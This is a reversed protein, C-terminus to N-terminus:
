RLLRGTARAILGQKLMIAKQPCIEHCCFCRICKSYDFRPKKDVMDIATAPCIDHCQRCGICLDPICAPRATFLNKAAVRFSKPVSNLGSHARRFDTILLEKIAPGIIRINELRAEPLGRKQAAALTLAEDPGMSIITCAVTDLAVADTSALVLGIQRPAGSGPGQGEMGVVADMISLCPRVIGNIELLMDSFLLNDQFRLHYSSKIKGPVCGYLNKVAGTYGTFMHTKLKPVNIVADYSLVKRSISLSKIHAGDKELPDDLEVLPVQLEQCLANIGSKEAANHLSQLGPSDGVEPMAGISRVEKIIAKLVSPHTTVAHEPTKGYLLNPKILVRQRPKLFSKLGGLPELCAKLSNDVIDQEYSSCRVVSVSTAM